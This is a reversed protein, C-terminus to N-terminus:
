SSGKEPLAPVELWRVLSADVADLDSERGLPASRVISTWESRRALWRWCAEGVSPTVRGDGAFSARVVRSVGGQSAVFVSAPLAGGRWGDGRVECGAGRLCDDPAHLHRLPSPTSVVLVEVDGYRAKRVSGAAAFFRRELPLLAVDERPRGLLSAPLEPLPSTVGRPARAPWAACAAAGLTMVLALAVRARLPSAPAGPAPAPASTRRRPARAAWAVLPVCGAALALMGVAEHAAGQSLDVGGTWAPRAISAASVAIRLANGAVAGAVGLLAPALARAGSPRVVAGVACAFALLLVLGHAGSCPVDVAIAHGETALVPGARTVDLAPALAAQALAAAGVQLPHAAVRQVIREVPLAFVALLALWAPSVARSRSSTGCWSAAALVDLPLALAGLTDIGAARGALRLALGALLAVGGARSPTSALRPSSASWGLLSVVLLAVWAGDAGVSPDRWTALLWAAPGAALALAAAVTAARLALPMSPM